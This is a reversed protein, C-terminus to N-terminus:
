SERFARAVQDMLPKTLYSLATRGAPQIFAEVPMGAILKLDGLRRLESPPIAIRVTYYSQGTREDESLDASIQTVTGNLEPTTRM